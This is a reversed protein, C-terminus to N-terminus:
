VSGELWAFGEDLKVLPANPLVHPRFRPDLIEFEDM